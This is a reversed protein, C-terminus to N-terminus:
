RPRNKKRQAKADRDRARRRQKIQRHRRLSPTEGGGHLEEETAPSRRRADALIIVAIVAILGIGFAFLGIEEAATLGTSSGSTNSPTTATVTPAPTTPTGVQPTGLLSQAGACAPTVALALVASLCAIRRM